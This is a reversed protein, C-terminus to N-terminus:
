REGISRSVKSPANAITEVDVHGDDSDQDRCISLNVPDSSSRRRSSASTRRELEDDDCDGNRAGDGSDEEQKVASHRQEERVDVSMHRSDQSHGREGSRSHREEALEEDLDRDDRDEEEMSSSHNDGTTASSTTLRDRKIHRSHTSSERSKSRRRRMGMDSENCNIDTDRKEQGPILIVASSYKETLIPDVHLYYHTGSSPIM